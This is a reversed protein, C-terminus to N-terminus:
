TMADIRINLPIADNVVVFPMVSSSRPHGPAPPQFCVMQRIVDL